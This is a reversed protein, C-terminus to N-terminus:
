AIPFVAMAHDCPAIPRHLLRAHYGGLLDDDRPVSLKPRAGQEVSRALARYQQEPLNATDTADSQEPPEEERLVVQQRITLDGRSTHLTLRVSVTHGSGSTVANLVAQRQATLMVAARYGPSGSALMGAWPGPLDLDLPLMGVEIEPHGEPAIAVEAAIIRM